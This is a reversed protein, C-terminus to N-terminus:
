TSDYTLLHKSKAQVSEFQLGNTVAKMSTTTHHLKEEKAIEKYLPDKKM